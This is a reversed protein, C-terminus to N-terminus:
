NLTKQSLDIVIFEAPYQLAVGVQIHVEGNEIQVATNNEADCKVYFAQPNTAGRLGGQTRYQGLFANLSTRIQQWLREDNNEFIAFETLNKINKRIYILSRRMNVYKNATGDQLLTRAGMVALGGGPIQRIANVPASGSNLTDLETSTLRKESAIVGNLTTSIGAPAKFVGVTADTNLYLGAVAAAPSVKRLSASSRGVPDVIFVNPYYVAGYSTDTLSAAFSIASAVTLDAATGMVVFANNDAAWATAANYVSPVNASSLTKFIEPLFLVLPRDLPSFEAFVSDGTSAYSTYDTNAVASGNSGSALPYVAPHPTGSASNSVTIYSSILNIVTEAYDSSTADNFLVNEYRELLVDNSVDSATGSVGEKYVSITVTGSTGEEVKVRLNNGDTGRNKARIKAVNTAGGAAIIWVQAAVADAPLIRKVYLERGGNQFYLSIGFTAPYAADYGGFNKTFEYWSNVLTVTEPGQALPAVIAGAANATVGGTIVSPLLRESIYVGPRSYAM